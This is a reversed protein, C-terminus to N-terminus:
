RLVTAGRRELRKIEADTFRADRPGKYRAKEYSILEHTDASILMKYCHSDFAIQSPAIGIAVLAGAEGRLFAGDAADPDLYVTKGQLSGGTGSLGGYATRDSIMAEEVFAQIIDLFAGMMVLERGSPEEYDAIPMRVVEFPKNLSEKEDDRGGKSLILWALGGDRELTLFYYNNSSRLVAYEERSCFEYPSIRWHVATEEKLALELISSGELVVKTTHTPFDGLRVKRTYLKGSQGWAAIGALLLLAASFVCILRQKM